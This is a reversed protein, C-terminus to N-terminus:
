QFMERTSEWRDQWATSNLACINPRRQLHEHPKWIFLWSIKTQATILTWRIEPGLGVCRDRIKDAFYNFETYVVPIGSTQLKFKRAMQRRQSNNFPLNHNASWRQDGNLCKDILLNLAKLFEGSLFCHLGKQLNWLCNTNRLVLESISQSIIKCVMRGCAEVSFYIWKGSLALCPINQLWPLVFCLKGKGFSPFKM